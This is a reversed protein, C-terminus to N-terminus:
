PVAQLDGGPCPVEEGALLAERRRFPQGIRRFSKAQLRLSPQFDSTTQASFM